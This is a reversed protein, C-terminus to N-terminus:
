FPGIGYTQRWIVTFLHTSHMTLVNGEKRGNMCSLSLGAVETHASDTYESLEGCKPPISDNQAFLLLYIQNFLHASIM